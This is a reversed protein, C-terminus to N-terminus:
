GWEDEEVGEKVLWRWRGKVEVPARKEGSGAGRSEGNEIVRLKWDLSGRPYGPIKSQSDQNTMSGAERSLEVSRRSSEHSIPGKVGKKGGEAPEKELKALVSSNGPGESEAM